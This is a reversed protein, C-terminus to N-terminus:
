RREVDYGKEKLAIVIGKEGILHGSGVVVFTSGQQKLMDDIKVTMKNNRAYFL